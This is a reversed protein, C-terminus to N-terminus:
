ILVLRQRILHYIANFHEWVGEIRGMSLDNDARSILTQLALSPQQTMDIFTEMARATESFMSLIERFLGDLEDSDYECRSRKKNSDTTPPPVVDYHYKEYVHRFRKVCVSKESQYTMWFLEVWDYDQRLQGLATGIDQDVLKFFCASQKTTMMVPLSDRSFQMILFVAVTFLEEDSRVLLEFPVGFM